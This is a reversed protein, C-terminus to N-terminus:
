SPSRRPTSFRWTHSPPQRFFRANVYLLTSKHPFKSLLGFLRRTTAVVFDIVIYVRVYPNYADGFCLSPIPLVLIFMQTM